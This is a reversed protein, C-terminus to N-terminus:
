ERDAEEQQRQFELQLLYRMLAEHKEEDEPIRSFQTEDFQLGFMTFRRETPHPHRRIVTAILSFEDAESERSAYRYRRSGIRSGTSKSIPQLAFDVQAIDGNQPREPDELEVFLCIGSGSLNVVHGKSPVKQGEALLTVEVSTSQRFYSRIAFDPPITGYCVDLQRRFAEEEEDDDRIVETRLARIITQYEQIPGGRTEKHLTVEQGESLQSNRPREFVIHERDLRLINTQYEEENLGRRVHLDTPRPPKIVQSSRNSMAM